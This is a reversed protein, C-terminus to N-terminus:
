ECAGMADYSGEGVEPPARESWIGVDPLMGDVAPDDNGDLRPNFRPGRAITPSVATDAGVEPVLASPSPKPNPTSKLGVVSPELGSLSRGLIVM